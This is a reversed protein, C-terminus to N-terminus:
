AALGSHRLLPAPDPDRGRFKRFVEAPPLSGGMALITDRYRRGVRRLAEADQLGAEEFAAFADASMVEAWKYSYYGAAYGGGFIHSFGALFRDEALPPTVTARLAVGRQVEFADVPGELRYDRHLELDILGFYIQRLMNSGARYARADRLKALLADPLCEGTELHRSCHHVVDREYCWNEMFQSAVEVADWEVGQIGAVLSDDVTTLMHQLAHGFEHFLTRMEGFSMLSPRAENGPAQNCVVYATPLRVGGDEGLCSSRSIAGNMWAGGRKVGPRSYADFYFRAIEQGQEDTVRFYRVDPHWVPVQGDAAEVSVGFLKKTLDFLGELVVPLPFYPRLEEDHLGYREERLREAWFAVDWHAFSDPGPGGKAAAYTKLEELEARAADLSSGRLSELLREVSGEDEAMKARLSVQAYNELGLLKASEARLSLISAILPTNDHDGKSARTIHAMYMERRLERRPCHELFPIMSPADLTFRWPGQEADAEKALGAEQARGAALALASAPMGEIAERDMVDLSFAATADMLNNGFQSGLRALETQVEAFRERSAGDLAVGSLEADLLAGSVVRQRAPGLAAWQPGEKLQTLADYLSRSQQVKVMLDVILPQCREHVARLEPSNAVSMLHSATGWVRSVFDQMRELRGMTSAWTPESALEISTLEALSSAVLETVATEIRGPDIEDFRIPDATMCSSAEPEKTPRDIM